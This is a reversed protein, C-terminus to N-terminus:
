QNNFLTPIFETIEYEAIKKEFFPDQMIIINLEERNVENALIVGGNRPVKPGSALFISKQYYKKLFKIHEDRVEDVKEIPVIYKLDIIFM